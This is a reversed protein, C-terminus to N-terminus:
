NVNYNALHANIMTILHSALVTLMTSSQTKFHNVNYQYDATMLGYQYARQDSTNTAKLTSLVDKVDDPNFNTPDDERNMKRLESLINEVLDCLAYMQSMTMVPMTTKGVKSSGKFEEVEYGTYSLADAYATNDAVTKINDKVWKPDLAIGEFVKDGIMPRTRKAILMNRKDSEVEGRQDFVKPLNRVVEDLEVNRENGFYRIIDGKYKIQESSWARLCLLIYNIEGKLVSAIDGGPLKGNKSISRAVLESIEVENVGDVKNTVIDLTALTAELRTELVEISTNLEVWIREFNESLANAWRKINKYSEALIEKLAGTRLIRWESPLLSLGFAETGSVLSMGDKVVINSHKNIVQDVETVVPISLQYDSRQEVTDLAAQVEDRIAVNVRFDDMVENAEKVMNEVNPVKALSIEAMKLDNMVNATM